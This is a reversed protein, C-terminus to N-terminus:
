VTMHLMSYKSGIAPMISLHPLKYVRSVLGHIKFHVHIYICVIRPTYNTNRPGLQLRVTETCVKGSGREPHPTEVLITRLWYLQTQQLVCATKMGILSGNLTCGCM